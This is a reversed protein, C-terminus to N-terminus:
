KMQLRGIRAALEGKTIGIKLADQTLADFEALTDEKLQNHNIASVFCGRGSVSHVIKKRELEQYAKAVTNPNVGIEKALVRVSPLKENETLVHKIVLGTIKKYLQIYIPVESHLDVGYTNKM